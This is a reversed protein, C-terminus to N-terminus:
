YSSQQPFKCCRARAARCWLFAGLKLSSVTCGSSGLSSEVRLADCGFVHGIIAASAPAAKNSANMNAGLKSRSGVCLSRGITIIRPTTVTPDIKATDRQPRRCVDRLYHSRLPRSPTLQFQSSEPRRAWPSEVHLLGVEAFGLDDRKEFLESGSRQRRLKASLVANMRVGNRSQLSFYAPRSVLSWLRSLCSSASFACICLM